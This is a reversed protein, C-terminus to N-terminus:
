VKAKKGLNSVTLLAASGLEGPMKIRLPDTIRCWVSLWADLIIM